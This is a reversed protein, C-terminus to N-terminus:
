VGIDCGTLYDKLERFGQARDSIIQTREHGDAPKCLLVVLEELRKNVAADQVLGKELLEQIMKGVLFYNRSTDVEANEDESEVRDQLTFGLSPPLSDKRFTGIKAAFECDIVTWRRGERRVDLVVNAWRLDRHVWQKKHMQSVTETIDQLVESSHPLRSCGFPTLKFATKEPLRQARELGPVKATANYFPILHRIRSEEYVKEVYPESDDKTDRHLMVRDKKCNWGEVDSRAKAYACVQIMARALLTVAGPEYFRGQLTWAPKGDRRLERAEFLGSGSSVIGLISPMDGYFAASWPRMKRVLEGSAKRLDAESTKSEIRVCDVFGIQLLVDPRKAQIGSGLSSPSSADFLAPVKEDVAYQAARVLSSHM